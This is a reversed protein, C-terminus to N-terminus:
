SLGPTPSASPAASKISAASAGGGGDITSWDLSFSQAHLAPLFGLCSFGFGLLFGFRFGWHLANDGSVRTIPIQKSGPHQLRSNKM